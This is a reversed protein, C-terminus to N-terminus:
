PCRAGSSQVGRLFSVTADALAEPREFHVAHGTAPVILQIANPISTALIAAIEVYRSDLAGAVVLTPAGIEGLRDHVPADTGAGAGRLSNALGKPRNALRQKRLVDRAVDSLSTQTEWLPLREWEDVFAEIGYREIREALATDTASRERRLETDAIGPSTSELILAALKDPHALAFRLAARGGMSYGMVAVREVSLVELVRALDDAFSALSFRRPSAPSSSRGHGPLDIAIVRNAAVLTSILPAWTESSGTFGHLLVLPPGTGTDGVHLVLEDGVDVDLHRTDQRNSM